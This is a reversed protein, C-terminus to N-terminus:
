QPYFSLTKGHKGCTRKKIKNKKLVSLLETWAGGGAGGLLHGNRQLQSECVRKEQAIVVHTYVRLLLCYPNHKFIDWSSDNNM